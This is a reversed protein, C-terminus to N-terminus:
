VRISQTLTALIFLVSAVYVILGLIKPYNMIMWCYIAEFANDDKNRM